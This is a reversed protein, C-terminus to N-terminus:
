RVLTQAEGRLELHGTVASMNKSGTNGCRKRDLERQCDTMLLAGTLAFFCYQAVLRDPM